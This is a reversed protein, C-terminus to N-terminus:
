NPNMLAAYVVGQDHDIMVYHVGGVHYIRLHQSDPSPWWDAIPDIDSRSLEEPMEPLEKANKLLKTEYEQVAGKALRGRLYYNCYLSAPSFYYVDTLDDPLSCAHM